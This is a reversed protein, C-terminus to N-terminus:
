RFLLDKKRLLRTRILYGWSPRNSDIEKLIGMTAATLVKREKLVIRMGKLGDVVARLWVNFYGDRVSYVLMSLLGRTLYWAAYSIPFNRGALWFQNRTDFYYNRWPERSEQAFSHRVVIDGVYIVKFGQEFIRFALDPGEHSLFFNEPYYGACQLTKKSFAVAGETIEYTLFKKNFFQDELCHHIWNCTQGDHNVVRFNVAGLMRDKEFEEVLMHLAQDSLGSVDDDLTVIIDGKANMMGVNRGAAGINKETRMYVVQPFDSQVMVQTMDQSHNDVVIIELSAYELGILEKLLNRLLSCRNFTLICISLSRM